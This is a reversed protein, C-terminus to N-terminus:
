KVLTWENKASAVPEASDSHNNRNKRNKRRRANKLQCKSPSQNKNDQQCLYNKQYSVKIWKHDVSQLSLPSSQLSIQSSKTTDMEIPRNQRNRRKKDKNKIKQKENVIDKQLLLKESKAFNDYLKTYTEKIPQFAQNFLPNRSISSPTPSQKKSNNPLIIPAGNIHELVTTLEKKYTYNITERDNANIPILTNITSIHDFSKFSITMNLSPNPIEISYIMLFPDTTNQITLVYTNYNNIQTLINQFKITGSKMYRIFHNIIKNKNSYCFKNLQFIKIFLILEENNHYGLYDQLVTYSRALYDIFPFRSTSLESNYIDLIDIHQTHDKPTIKIKYKEGSIIPNFTGSIISESTTIIVSIPSNGSILKLSKYSLIQNWGKAICNLNLFYNERGQKTLQYYDIIGKNFYTKIFMSPDILRKMYNLFFKKHDEETKKINTFMGLAGWLRNYGAMYIIHDTSLYRNLYKHIEATLHSDPIKLKYIDLEHTIKNQLKLYIKEPIQHCESIILIFITILNKAFIINAFSIKKSDHKILSNLLSCPYQICNMFSNLINLSCKSTIFDQIIKLIYESVNFDSKTLPQININIDLCIITMLISHDTNKELYPIQTLQAIIKERSAFM